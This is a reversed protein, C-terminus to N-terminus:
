TPGPDAGTPEGDAVHVTERVVYTDGADTDTFHPTDARVRDAADSDMAREYTEEDPFYLHAVGDIPASEPDLPEATTYRVLGPLREALPVHRDYWHERFAARSRDERAVLTIVVQIV